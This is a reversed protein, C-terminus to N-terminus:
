CGAIWSLIIKSFNYGYFTNCKEVFNIVKQTIKNFNIRQGITPVVFFLLFFRNTWFRFFFFVCVLYMFSVLYFSFFVYCPAKFLFCFNHSTNRHTFFCSILFNCALHRRRWNFIFHPKRYKKEKSKECQDFTMKAGAALVTQLLETAAVM